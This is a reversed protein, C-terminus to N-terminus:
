AAAAIRDEADRREATRVHEKLQREASKINAAAGSAPHDAIYCRWAVGAASRRQVSGVALFPDAASFYNLIGTHPCSRSTLM